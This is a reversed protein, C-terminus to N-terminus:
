ALEKNILHFLRLQNGYQNLSCAEKYLNLVKNIHASIIRPTRSIIRAPSIPILYKLLSQRVRKHKHPM